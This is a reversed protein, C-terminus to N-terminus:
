HHGYKMALAKTLCCNKDHEEDQRKETGTLCRVCLVFTLFIDIRGSSNVQYLFLFSSNNVGHAVKLTHVVSYWPRV